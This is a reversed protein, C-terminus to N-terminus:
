SSRKFFRSLKAIREHLDQEIEDRLKTRSFGAAEHASLVVDPVIVPIRDQSGGSEFSTHTHGFDLEFGGTALWSLMSELQRPERALDTTEVAVELRPILFHAGSGEDAVLSEYATCPAAYVTSVAAGACLSIFPQYEDEELMVEEHQKQEKYELRQRIYIRWDDESNEDLLRITAASTIVPPTSELAIDSFRRLVRCTVFVSNKPLSNMQKALGFFLLHSVVTDPFVYRYVAEESVVPNGSVDKVKKDHLYWFVIPALWSMTPSKVAAAYVMDDRSRGFVLALTTEFQYIENRVIEGYLRDGEYDQIRHVLPFLRGDRFILKPRHKIGALPAEGIPRWDADRLVTRRDQYYQRLDMAASRAHKLDSEAFEGKLAPSLVLGEAAAKLDKYEDLKDPHIDFDQYEHVSGNSRVKLAAAATIVYVPDPPVFSGQSHQLFLDAVSADTGVAEKHENAPTIIDLMRDGFIRMSLREEAAQPDFEAKEGARYKLANAPITMIGPLPNVARDFRFIQRFFRRATSLRANLDHALEEAEVTDNRSVANLFKDGLDNLDKEMWQAMSILLRVPKEESFQPACEVIATAYADSSLHSEAIKQLVSKGRARRTSEEPNLEGIEIESRTRVEAREVGPLNDFLSKQQATHDPHVYRYPPAGPRGAFTKRKSLRKEREMHSLLIRLSRSSISGNTPLRDFIESVELGKPEKQLIELVEQALSENIKQQAV